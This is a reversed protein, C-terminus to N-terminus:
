GRFAVNYVNRIRAYWIELSYEDANGKILHKTWTICDNYKPTQYFTKSGSTYYILFERKFWKKMMILM